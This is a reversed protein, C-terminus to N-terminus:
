CKNGQQLELEASRPRGGSAMSFLKSGEGECSGKVCELVTIEERLGRLGLSFLRMEKLREINELSRSMKQHKERSDRCGNGVKPLSSCGSDPVACSFMLAVWQFEKSLPCFFGFIM